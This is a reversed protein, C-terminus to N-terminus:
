TKKEGVFYDNKSKFLANFSTMSGYIRTIYQQISVKEEVTLVKHSNINQELVRLRDRMMVIKHFFTEIPIEKNSLGAEGPQLVMTGGEWKDGLEVIEQVDYYGDFVSQVANVVDELSVGKTTELESVEMVTMGEYAKGIKEEGNEKFFVRWTTDSEGFIVGEGLSPHNVKTGLTM